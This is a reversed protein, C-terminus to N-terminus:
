LYRKEISSFPCHTRKAPLMNQETHERLADPIGDRQESTFAFLLLLLKGSGNLDQQGAPIHRSHNYLNDPKYTYQVKSVCLSLLGM